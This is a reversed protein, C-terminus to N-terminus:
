SDTTDAELYDLGAAQLLPALDAWEVDARDGHNDLKLHYVIPTGLRNTRVSAVIGHGPIAKGFADHIPSEFRYRVFQAKTDAGARAGEETLSFGTRGEKLVPLLSYVDSVATPSQESSKESFRVVWAHDGPFKVGRYQLTLADDRIDLATLQLLADDVVYGAAESARELLDSNSVYDRSTSGLFNCGIPGAAAVVILWSGACLAKAGLGLRPLGGVTNMRL